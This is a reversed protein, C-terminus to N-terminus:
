RTRGGLLPARSPPVAPPEHLPAAPQPRGFYQHLRRELLGRGLAFTSLTIIVSAFTTVSLWHSESFNAVAQEFFLGLYLSAQARDFEFMRLSQVIHMLLYALLVLLGVAGLDNVIELYGNHASGPYFYLKRVFEYSPSSPLPGIWYAGYGSGLLPRFRIHETVIAWIDSRGTFTLDKGTLMVIPKLLVELGPVLRLVALSYALLLTVFIGVLYPMYPGLSRPPRLLMALLVCAFVASLLSTSSRSLILCSGAILCGAFSHLRRTERTLAAHVWFLLGMAALAGLTNKHNTLGRWAGALEGSEDAAHIALNPSLVGFILSGLLLLSLIPRVVEQFRSRHWAVSVFAISIGLFTGLRILRRVTVGPEISWAVSLIALAVFALLFPNTWRLVLIGIRVRWLVFTFGAGLLGLWLLRSGASGSSPMTGTALGAYDFGDPVIMLVLLLWVLGTLVPAHRDDRIWSAQALGTDASM